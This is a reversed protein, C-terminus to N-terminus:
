AWAVPNIDLSVKASLLRVTTTATGTEATVRLQFNKIADEATEFEVPNTPMVVATTAQGDISVLTLSGSQIWQTNATNTTRATWEVIVGIATNLANPIDIAGFTYPAAADDVDYISFTFEQDGALNSLLSVYAELKIEHPRDIPYEVEYDLLTVPDTSPDTSATGTRYYTVLPTENQLAAVTNTLNPNIFPPINTNAM